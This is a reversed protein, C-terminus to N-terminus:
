SDGRPFDTATGAAETATSDPAPEVTFGEARLAAVQRGTGTIDAVGHEVGTVTVGAAEVTDLAAVSRLDYVEFQTATGAATTTDPRAAASTSVALLAVAGVGVLAVPLSLRM